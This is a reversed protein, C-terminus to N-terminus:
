WSGDGIRGRSQAAEISAAKLKAPKAAQPQRRRFRAQGIVAVIACAAKARTLTM